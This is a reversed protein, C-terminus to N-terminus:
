SSKRKRGDCEYSAIGPESSPQRARTRAGNDGGCCRAANDPQLVSVAILAPRSLPLKANREPNLSLAYPMVALAGLVGAVLLAFFTTWPYASM